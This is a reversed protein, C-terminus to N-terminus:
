NKTSAGPRITRGTAQQGWTKQNNQGATRDFGPSLPSRQREKLFM